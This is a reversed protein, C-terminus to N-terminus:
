SSGTPSPSRKKWTMPSSSWRRGSGGLSAAAREGDAADPRGLRLVARGDAPHAAVHHPDAGPWGSACGAPSNWPYRSATGAMGVKELWPMAQARAQPPRPARSCPASHSTTSCPAGPCCGTRSCCTAPRATSASFRSGPSRSPAPARRLGTIVNLITSKGCGSPGVVCLFEGPDVALDVREIAIFDGFGVTVGSFRVAAADTQQDQYAQPRATGM